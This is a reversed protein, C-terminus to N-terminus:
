VEKQRIHSNIEVWEPHEELLKLVARWSFADHGFHDYIRRSFSLDEETDVTWRLHSYDVDNTMGQLRFLDPHRHIYPTVHERWAPDKDDRWAKELAGFLMVEADLGRPFTRRPLLTSAYDVGPQHKHFESILQDILEPEIFPCDSTIRLVAEAEFHLAARYYRDLVDAEDGRFCDWGRAKCLNAIADDAARDTTAVIVQAIKETRRTRNVVRALMPEGALDMLAKGPLRTSGIRAQVIAVTRM